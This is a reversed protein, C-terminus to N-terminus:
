RDPYVMRLEHVDCASLCDEFVLDLEDLTLQFGPCGGRTLTGEAGGCQRCTWFHCLRCDGCNRSCRQRQHLLVVSRSVEECAGVDVRVRAISAATHANRDM